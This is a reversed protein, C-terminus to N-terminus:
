PFVWEMVQVNDNYTSYTTTSNNMTCLKQSNLATIIKNTFMDNIIVVNWQLM